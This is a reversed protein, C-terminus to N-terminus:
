SDNQFVVDQLFLNHQTLQKIALTQLSQSSLEEPHEDVARHTELVKDSQQNTKLSAFDNNCESTASVFGYKNPNM